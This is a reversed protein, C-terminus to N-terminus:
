ASSSEPARSGVPATQPVHRFRPLELILAAGLAVIGIAALTARAGVVATGVGTLLLPLILLTETLSEQVAFVRGQQGAPATATLAVRAAIISSTLSIGLLFAAPLAVLYTTNMSTQFYSMPGRMSFDAVVQLGYDLSALALVAAIMGAVSLRMMETASALTQARSAWWLGVIVGAAGPVVLFALASRGADLNNALYLPLAVVVGRAVTTKLALAAVAYRARPEDLFFRCTAGFTFANSLSQTVWATTTRLRLALLAAVGSGMWFVVASGILMLTVGGILYLAPALVLMGAGQGVYQLAIITSHTRASRDKQLTRVIALEAPSLVQSVTSYVVALAIATAPGEVVFVAASLTGARLLQGLVIGRAPGIRDALAGGLVGFLMAPVLQALFLSSLGVAANQGTGAAVFLAGLFINQAVQGLFKSGFYLGQNRNVVGRIGM